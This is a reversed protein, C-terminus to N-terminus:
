AANEDTKVPDHIGADELIGIVKERDEISRAHVSLLVAEGHAQENYRDSLGEEKLRDVIARLQIETRPFCSIIM